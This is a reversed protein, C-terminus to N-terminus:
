APNQGAEDEGGGGGKERERTDGSQGRQQDM